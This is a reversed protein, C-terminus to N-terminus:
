RFLGQNLKLKLELMVKDEDLDDQVNIGRFATLTETDYFTHTYDINLSVNRLILTEIGIGPAIGEADFGGSLEPIVGGVGNNVTLDYGTEAYAVSLYFLTEPNILIGGRIGAAWEDDKELLFSGGTGPGFSIFGDTDMDTFDYLGFIGVVFRGGGIQYDAGIKGRGIVGQSNLGDLGASFEGGIKALGVDQFEDNVSLDHNANGYGVGVGVYLATWSIYPREPENQVDPFADEIDAAGAAGPLMTVCLAAAIAAIALRKM